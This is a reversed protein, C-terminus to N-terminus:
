NLNMLFGGSECNMVGEVTDEWLEFDMNNGAGFMNLFSDLNFETGYLDNISEFSPAHAPNGEIYDASSGQKGRSEARGLDILQSINQVRMKAKDPFTVDEQSSDSDTVIDLDAKRIAAELFRIAYDAACYKDRLEEMVQACHCFGQLAEKRIANNNSKIALLHVMSAPLLVTLSSTPLLQELKLNLLDFSIKSIEQSAKQAKQSTHRVQLRQLASVTAFYVMHLLARQVIFSTGARAVEETSPTIYLCHAPLGQKWERLMADCLQTKDIQHMKEPFLMFNARTIDQQATGQDRVLDCYRTSLVHGLCLCLKAKAICMMALDTQLITDEIFTCDTLISINHASSARIDFDELTLMPIDYDGDKIRTSRSLGLAVLQDRMFCSWWLRRWLHQKEINMHSQEPNRHLGVTHALSIAIGM